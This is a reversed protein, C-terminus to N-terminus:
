NCKDIWAVFASKFPPVLTSVNFRVAFGSKALKIDSSNFKFNEEQQNWYVLCITFLSTTFYVTYSLNTAFILVVSTM